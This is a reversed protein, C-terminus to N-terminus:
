RAHAQGSGLRKLRAVTEDFLTPDDLSQRLFREVIPYAEVDAREQDSDPDFIGLSIKDYNREYTAVVRLVSRAAEAHNSEIIETMVRSKSQRVDIAPFHAREALAKTLIIHGDLISMTEDAIPDSLDGAPTLVTYIATISGTPGTGSRELLRPLQSFVSAPFGQRGPAEGASLGVDRLARAYRTVSDMLLLVNMGKDRGWEAVATAAHAARLRLLPPEDSTSVFAVSRAMGAEGLNDELFSRVERGREGILAVVVLDVEARNAFAGLLTSKGVGPGAFLGIRQGHGITLLGDVARIGTRLVATIRARSLPAPPPATLVRRHVSGLPGKGDVPQGRADLVRGVIGPGVPTTPHNEVPEVVARFKIGEVPGLPMLIVGHEDFGVVEAEALRDDSRIRCVEGLRAGPIKARLVPGVASVVEGTRLPSGPTALLEELNSRTLNSM